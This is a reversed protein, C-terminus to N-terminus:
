PTIIYRLVINFIPAGFRGTSSDCHLFNTFLCLKGLTHCSEKTFAWGLMKSLQLLSKSNVSFCQSMVGSLLFLANSSLPESVFTKHLHSNTSVSKTRFESQMDVSDVFLKWRYSCAVFMKRPYLSSQILLRASFFPENTLLWECPLRLLLLSRNTFWFCTVTSSFVSTTWYPISRTKPLWQNHARIISQIQLLFALLDLRGIWFGINDNVCAGWVHCYSSISVQLFRGNYLTDWSSHAM